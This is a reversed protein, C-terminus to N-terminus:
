RCGAGICSRLAALRRELEARLPAYEPDVARNDLQDPDVDLDYLEVAGSPYEILSYRPTRVAVVTEPEFLKRRDREAAQADADTTPLKQLELLLTRGRGAAPDRALPLLSRGDPPLDPVVAATQLITPALDVNGVLQDSVVGSPIGPGRLLLPVRVAGEYVSGKGLLRHDGFLFGQDSTFVVLTNELEGSARLARIIRAVLDDVSLLSELRSRNRLTLEGVVEPSLPPLAQLERPKDSIDAEDFSASRPFEATALSGEHRPAPRPNRPADALKDIVGERHPALTAVSLFFPEPRPASRRVFAAARRGLLDTQYDSTGLGYKRLRGNENLTYGWMRFESHKVPVQWEEWGPPVELPDNGLAPNGYGNLYRGIHATRYGAESLWVPLTRSGDLAAFGGDPERNSLVGHNHAYQGTLFTARSPCCQPTTAVAQSFTAGRRGILRKVNRMIGMSALDQDDTM